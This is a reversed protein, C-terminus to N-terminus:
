IMLLLGAGALGSLLNKANGTPLAAMGSSTSTSKASASTTASGTATAASGTTISVGTASPVGTTATEVGNGTATSVASPVLTAGPVADAGTGIEVIDDKGPNFNTNALSIENNDLDYVVYASRLFTDGLINIGPKSPTLGLMCSNQPWGSVGEFLVFQSLGVDVKAGSFSYTVNYDTSRLDCSVYAFGSKDDYTGNLAKLIDTFLAEPLSCYTSGSDLSVALPLNTTTSTADGTQVIVETLALALSYYNDYVPVVPLTQLEGTYQAKNVGGFLITGTEASVDNMWLSYATSKTIGAATLAYPLNNYKKNLGSAYTSLNYGVGAIGV